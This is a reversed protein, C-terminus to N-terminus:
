RNTNNTKNNEHYISNLPSGYKDCKLLGPIIGPNYYSEVGCVSCKYKYVFLKTEKIFNEKIFSQSHVLENGCDCFAQSNWKGDIAHIMDGKKYDKLDYWTGYNKFYTKDSFMNRFWRKQILYKNIKM